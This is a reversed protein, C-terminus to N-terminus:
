MGLYASRLRDDASVEHAPAHHVVLGAELVYAHDAIGLALHANQEVILMTMSSETKLQELSDFLNHVVIPALGLSPEDLLLLKPRSMLARAIALMQQEGGSMAGAASRRRDALVPWMDYYREMDTRVEADRRVYAGLRLNEEVTLDSFTGRGEPVMALGRRAIDPRSAHTIDEDDFRIQGKNSTGGTLARLLTTKGAGNAGLMVVVSGVEVRFDIGHLVPLKGYAATLDNVELLSM